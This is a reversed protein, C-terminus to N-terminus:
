LGSIQFWPTLLAVSRGLARSSMKEKGRRLAKHSSTARLGQCMKLKIQVVGGRTADECSCRGESRVETEWDRWESSTPSVISWNVDALVGSGLLSMNAPVLSLVTVYM